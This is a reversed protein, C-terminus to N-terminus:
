KKEGMWKYGSPPCGQQEVHASSAWTGFVNDAERVCSRWSGGGRNGESRSESKSGGGLHTFKKVVLEARSFRLLKNM